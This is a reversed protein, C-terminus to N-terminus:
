GGGPAPVDPPTQQHGQLGQRGPLSPSPVQLCYNVDAKHKGGQSLHTCLIRLMKEKLLIEAYFYM